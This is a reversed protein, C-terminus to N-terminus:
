RDVQFDVTGAHEVQGEDVQGAQCLDGHAVLGGIDLSLDLVQDQVVDGLGVRAYVEDCGRESGLTM